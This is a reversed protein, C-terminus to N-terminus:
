PNDPHVAIFDDLGQYIKNHGPVVTLQYGLSKLLDKCQQQVGPLHYDHTALMIRPKKTELTHRAGRLVDYEAGEVDIKIIDPAPYGKKVLGDVSHCQVLLQSGPIHGNANKGVYTNGEIRSQDNSFYVEKEEDSIACTLLHINQHRIKQRNLEMHSRFVAINEPIPEASYISGNSIVQNAMFAYYGVNAGLDYFVTDPKLWSYFTGLTEKDEYEGTLYDYNYATSWLYGKLPGAMVPIFKRRLVYRNFKIYYSRLTNVFSM